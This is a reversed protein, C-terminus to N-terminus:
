NVTIGHGPPTYVGGQITIEFEIVNRQTNRFLDPKIDAWFNDIPKLDPSNDCHISAMSHRGNKSLVLKAATLRGPPLLQGWLRAYSSFLGCASSM